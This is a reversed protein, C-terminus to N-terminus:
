ALAQIVLGSGVITEAAKHSGIKLVLTQQGSTTQVFFLTKGVKCAPIQDIWHHEPPDENHELGRDMGKQSQVHLTSRGQQRAAFLTTGLAQTKLSCQKAIHTQLPANSYGRTKHSCPQALHAYNYTVTPKQKSLKNSVPRLM